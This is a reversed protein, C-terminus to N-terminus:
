DHLCDATVGTTIFVSDTVVSLQQEDTSTDKPRGDPVGNPHDYASHVAISAIMTHLSGAATCPKARSLLGFSGGQLANCAAITAALVSWVALGQHCYLLLQEHHSSTVPHVM